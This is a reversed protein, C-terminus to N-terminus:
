MHPFSVCVDWKKSVAPLPAYNVNTRPSEMNFPPNWVEVSLPYWSGDAQTAGAVLTLVAASAAQLSLTRRTRSM